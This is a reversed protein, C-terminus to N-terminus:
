LSRAWYAATVAAAGKEAEAGETDMAALAVASREGGVDAALVAEDSNVVDRRGSDAQKHIPSGTQAMDPDVKPATDFDAKASKEGTGECCVRSASDDSDAMESETGAPDDEAM